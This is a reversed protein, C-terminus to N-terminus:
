ACSRNGAARGARWDAFADDIARNSIEQGYREWMLGMIRDSRGLVPHVHQGWGNPPRHLTEVYADALATLTLSDTM